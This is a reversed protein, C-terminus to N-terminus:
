MNKVKIKLEELNRYEDSGYIDPHKVLLNTQKECILTILQKKEKKSLEM